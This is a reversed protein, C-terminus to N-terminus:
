HCPFGTSHRADHAADHLTQAQILGAAFVIALGIFGAVLAPILVSDADSATATKTVTTM